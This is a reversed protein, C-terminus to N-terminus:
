PNPIVLLKLRSPHQPVGIKLVRPSESGFVDPIWVRVAAIGGWYSWLGSVWVCGGFCGTFREFM